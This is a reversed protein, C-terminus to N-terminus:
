EGFNIYYERVKMLLSGLQNKIIKAHKITCEDCTCVGWFNDHWWNGEVLEEDNTELLKSKLEPNAFKIILLEAMIQVKVKGWDKRVLGNEKLEKGKKKATSADYQTFKAREELNLTKQAQFAAETSGFALGNYTISCSYFNSLFAYKGRFSTIM